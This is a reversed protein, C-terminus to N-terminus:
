KAYDNTPLREEFLRCLACHTTTVVIPQGRFIGSCVIWQPGRVTPSAHRCTSANAAGKAAIDEKASM